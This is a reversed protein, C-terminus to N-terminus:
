LSTNGTYAPTIRINHILSKLRVRTGRTHPPSGQKLELTLAGRHHEGHIRPHDKNQTTLASASHTNGTYAPTIRNVVAQKQGDSLTGRTHPPSGVSFGNPCDNNSHEGHIRPHDQSLPIQRGNGITNGTYAPTIRDGTKAQYDGM